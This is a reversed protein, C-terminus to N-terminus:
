QSLLYSMRNLSTSHKAAEIAAQSGAGGMAIGVDARALTPADNLGDGVFVVNGNSASIIEEFIRVKDQPLLGAHYEKIELEGAVNKAVEIGSGVTVFDIDDSKRGLFIDRVYGGVVYCERNMADAVSGVINFVPNSLHELINEQCTNM